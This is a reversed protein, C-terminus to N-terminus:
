EGKRTEPLRVMEGPPSTKYTGDPGRRFRWPSMELLRRARAEGDRVDKRRGDPYGDTAFFERAVAVVTERVVALRYFWEANRRLIGREKAGPRRGKPTVQARMAAMAARYEATAAAMGKHPDSGAPLEFSMKVPTTTASAAPVASYFRQLKVNWPLSTTEGEFRTVMEWALWPWPLDLACVLRQASQHIQPDASERERYAIFAAVFTDTARGAARWCTELRARAADDLPDCAVLITDGKLADVLDSADPYGAATALEHMAAAFAQVPEELGAMQRWAVLADQVERAGLFLELFRSRVEIHAEM